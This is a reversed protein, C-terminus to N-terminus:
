FPEDDITLSEILLNMREKGQSLIAECSGLEEVAIAFKRFVEELPLRGSEIEAIIKEVQAVKAEYDGINSM